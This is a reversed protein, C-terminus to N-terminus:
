KGRKKRAVLKLTIGDSINVGAGELIAKLAAEPVDINWSRNKSRNNDDRGKPKGAPNKKDNKLQKRNDSKNPKPNRNKRRQAMEQQVIDNLDMDIKKNKAAETLSKSIKSGDFTFGEFNSM